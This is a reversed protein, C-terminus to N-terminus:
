ERFEAGHLDEDVYRTMSRMSLGLVSM